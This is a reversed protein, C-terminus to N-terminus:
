FARAAWALPDMLIDIMVTAAPQSTNCTVFSVKTCAPAEGLCKQSSRKKKM